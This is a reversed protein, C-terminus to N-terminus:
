QSNYQIESTPSEETSNQKRLFFILVQKVNAQGTKTIFCYLLPDVLCSVCSIATSIKYTCLFWKFSECDHLQTRVLMMIHVPGFCFLLCLFVLALLKLIRLREEEKTAQNSKVALYTRCTFFFVLVVPIIFGVFFRAINAHLMNESLPMFIDYCMPNMNSQHYSDEWTITCANFGVVLVWIALTVAAATHVKRMFTYKLPHVVALYRNVAICCLLAESTYFNTFLTYISLLCIYGGHAWVGRWLFDLWLSLSITFTLDSLALNFLYVGLDNKQRIHQWSVYLSFANAPIAIIVVALYYVLFVKRRNESDVIYCESHNPTLTLNEM